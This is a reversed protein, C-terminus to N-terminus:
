DDEAADRDPVEFNFGKLKTDIEKPNAIGLKFPLCVVTRSGGAEASMPWACALCSSLIPHHRCLSFISQCSGRSNSQRNTRVIKIKQQGGDIKGVKSL